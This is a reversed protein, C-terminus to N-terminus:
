LKNNRNILEKIKENRHYSANDLKNKYNNTIYKELFSYLRETYVEKKM